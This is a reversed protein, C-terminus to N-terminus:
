SGTISACTRVSSQGRSFRRTSICARMCANRSISSNIHLRMPTYVCWHWTCARTPFHPLIARELCKVWEHSYLVVSRVCSDLALHRHSRTHSSYFLIYLVPQLTVGRIPSHHTAHRHLLWVHPDCCVLHSPRKTFWHLRLVSANKFM